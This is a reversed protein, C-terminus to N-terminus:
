INQNQDFAYSFMTQCLSKGSETRFDRQFVEKILEKSTPADHFEALRNSELLIQLQKDNSEVAQWHNTALYCIHDAVPPDYKLKALIARAMDPVPAALPDEEAQSSDQAIDHLISAAGLIQQEDEDLGELDAILITLSHAKLIHRIMAPENTYYKMMEQLLLSQSRM